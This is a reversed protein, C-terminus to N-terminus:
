ACNRNYEHHYKYTEGDSMEEYINLMRIKLFYDQLGRNASSLVMIHMLDHSTM